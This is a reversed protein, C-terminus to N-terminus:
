SPPSRSHSCLLFCASLLFGRLLRRLLLLESMSSVEICGTGEPAPQLMQQAHDIEIAGAAEELYPMVANQGRDLAIPSRLEGVDEIEQVIVAPDSDRHGLGPGLLMVDPAEVQAIVDYEGTIADALEIGKVGQLSKAVEIAKGASANILVYARM